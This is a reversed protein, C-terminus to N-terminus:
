RLYSNLIEVLDQMRDRYTHERLTREQGAQAIEAREEDCALYHKIAEVLEGESRYAVVERGVDFLEGLNEKHDTVLLCGVGTTEYLRMNNAYREAVDGHRNIAIRARALVRYMELGWAEGRYRARIPSDKAWEGAKYGWFDIPTKKAAREVLENSRWRPSHGLAGVFVAGFRPHEGQVEALVRSDFGIRLYESTIGRERLRAVYHPFSTVILDFPEFQALGPAETATQGVLLRTHSRLSRLIKPSLASLNQVYIVDPEFARAQRLVLSGGRPNPFGLAARKREHAWARQLPECNIVLEHAEHGLERLFHSYSDSTGFFRDMLARWQVEYTETALGSRAGYHSDLFAPYYTDLILVRVGRRVRM